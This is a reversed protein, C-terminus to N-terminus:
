KYILKEISDIYDKISCKRHVIDICKKGYEKLKMRNADLFLIKDAIGEIDGIEVILGNVENEIFDDVGSVDTVIPVCGGAMAQLMTLSTGEFESFNLYVDQKNLFAILDSLTLKGYFRVKNGLGNKDVYRILIEEYSGGGAINIIYNGGREELKQILMPLLDTRKQSVTLRCPYGIKLPEECNLSYNREVTEMNEIFPTRCYVRAEEIGYLNIFRSRIRGSICLYLDISDDWEYHRQYLRENDNLISSIIQIKDPFLHKIYSAAWLVESGWISFLTFPMKEEMWQILESYIEWIAKEKRSIRVTQRKLEDKIDSDTNEIIYVDRGRNSLSIVLKHAWDEAGGWTGEFNDVVITRQGSKKYNLNKLFPKEIKFTEIKKRIVHDILVIKDEIEMESLQRKIVEVDTCAILIEVEKKQKLVGPEFIKKDFFYTGQKNVDNDVYGYVEIGFRRLMNTYNKSIQGAGFLFLKKDM